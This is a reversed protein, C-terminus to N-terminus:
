WLGDQGTAKVIKNVTLILIMAVASKFLGAATAYSYDAQQIGVRYVYTDLIDAVDYVLANYLLFIQQFGAELINALSLIVLIIIVPRIAPLTVHWMQKLKNAGDIRAAEYLDASVGAIAALYIITGWGVEKYIDSLVLVSRFYRVDGLFDIPTGGFNRIIVNVMGDVPNLFTIIIGSFIVWSIFHPLYIISQAIRKFVVNKLENLLLSLIIPLSFSAALKYLSIVITNTLVETFDPSRFLRQFQDFGVWESGGIGKYINYDQFAIVVGYMPGYRFLLILLLGPLLLLYLYKDRVIDKLLTGKRNLSHRTPKTMVLEAQQEM